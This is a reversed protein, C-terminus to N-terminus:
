LCILYLGIPVLSGFPQPILWLGLRVNNNIINIYPIFMNFNDYINM